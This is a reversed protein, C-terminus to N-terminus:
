PMVSVLAASGTSECVTKRRAESDFDKAPVYVNMSKIDLHMDNLRTDLTM